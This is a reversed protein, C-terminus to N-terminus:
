DAVVVYGNTRAVVTGAREHGCAVLHRGATTRLQDYTARPVSLRTTCKGDGCECILELTTVDRLGFMQGLELIRNNVERFFETPPAHVEEYQRSEL